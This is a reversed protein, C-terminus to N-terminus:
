TCSAPAIGRISSCRKWTISFFRRDAMQINKGAPAHIGLNKGSRSRCRLGCEHGSRVSVHRLGGAPRDVHLRGQGSLRMPAGRKGPGSDKGPPGLQAPTAQLANVVTDAFFTIIGDKSCCASTRDRYCTRTCVANFYRNLFDDVSQRFALYPAITEVLERRGADGLRFLGHRVM